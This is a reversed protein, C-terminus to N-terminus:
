NVPRLGAKQPAGAREWTQVYKDGAHRGILSWLGGEATWSVALVGEAEYDTDLYSADFVLCDGDTLQFPREDSYDAPETM